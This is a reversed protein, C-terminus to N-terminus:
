RRAEQRTQLRAATAASVHVRDPEGHSEMLMAYTVTDGFLHYRPGKVGVVGAMVQSSALPPAPFGANSSAAPLPFHLNVPRLSPSGRNRSCHVASAKGTHLGIRMQVPAGTVRRLWPMLAVLEVAANACREAHDESEKPCGGVVFYADGIIEVKHLDYGSMIMDFKSFLTSLFDVLRKPTVTSSYATFGKMDTFLITVNNFEDALVGENGQLSAHCCLM